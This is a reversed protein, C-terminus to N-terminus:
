ISQSLYKKQWLSNFEADIIGLNLVKPLVMFCTNEETKKLFIAGKEYFLAM